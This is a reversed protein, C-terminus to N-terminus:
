IDLYKKHGGSLLWDTWARDSLTWQGDIQDFANLEALEDRIADVSNRLPGISPDHEATENIRDWVANSQYPNGRSM